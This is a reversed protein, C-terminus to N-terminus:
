YAQAPKQWVISYRWLLHRRFRCGPLLRRAAARVEGWSLDPEAVPMGAPDRKGGNRWALWRSVPVGAASVLWDVPTRDAALGVVVLVGGPALLRVLTGVADAFGWHHVVALASVFDYGGECLVGGVADRVDAEVVTVGALHATRERALRVMAASRDVGTVRGVREALRAVLLGDGCGVDLASACGQPVADLVLRHYHTNHNWYSDAM